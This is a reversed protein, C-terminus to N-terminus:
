PTGTREVAAGRSDPSAFLSLQAKPVVIRKGIRLAPFEGAHIARLLIRVDVRLWRAAEAPKLADPLAAYPTAPTIPPLTM